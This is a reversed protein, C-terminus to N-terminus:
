KNKEYNWTLAGWRNKSHKVQTNNQNRKQWDSIINKLEYNKM